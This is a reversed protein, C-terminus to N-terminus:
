FVTEHLWQGPLSGYRERFVQRGIPHWMAQYLNIWSVWMILRGEHYAEFTAQQPNFLVGKFKPPVPMRCPGLWVQNM